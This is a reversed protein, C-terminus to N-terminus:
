STGMPSSDKGTRTIEKTSELVSWAVGGAPTDAPKWVSETPAAPRQTLAAAPAALAIAALVLLVSLPRM